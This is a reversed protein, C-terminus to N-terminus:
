LNSHYLGAISFAIPYELTGTLVTLLCIQYKLLYETLMVVYRSSEGYQGLFAHFKSLMESNM